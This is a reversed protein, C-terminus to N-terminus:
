AFRRARCSPIGASVQLWMKRLNHGAAALKWETGCMGLGRHLFRRLGRAEKLQGFVPEVSRTRVSYLARGEDSAIRELMLEKTSKPPPPGARLEIAERGGKRFDNRLTCAWPVEVGLRKALEKLAVGEAVAREIVDARQKWERAREEHHRRKVVLLEDRRIM